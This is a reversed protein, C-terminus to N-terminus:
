VKCRCQKKRLLSRQKYPSDVFYKQISSGKAVRKDLPSHHNYSRRAMEKVLREHRNYLARLKGIWRLTEPHHSYGTKKKTLITWIAHLERHEGLLHQRCLIKPPLDWIRM